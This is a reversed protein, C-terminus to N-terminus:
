ELRAEVTGPGAVVAPYRNKGAVSEVVIAEGRRGDSLATVRESITLSGSRVLAMVPAGQRVEVPPLFDGRAVPQNPMLPRIAQLGAVESPDFASAGGLTRLEMVNVVLDDAQVTEGVQLQRRLTVVPAFVRVHVVATTTLLTRGEADKCALRINAHGPLQGSEISLMDMRAVHPTLISAVSRVQVQVRMEEPENGGHIHRRMADAVLGVARLHEMDLHSGPVPASPTGVGSVPETTTQVTQLTGAAAHRSDTTSPSSAEPPRRIVTVSPNGLFRVPDSFGLERIRSRIRERDIVVSEGPRPAPGVFLRPMHAAAPHDKTDHRVMGLDGLRVYAGDVDVEAHLTITIGAQVARASPVLLAVLLLVRVVRVAMGRLSLAGRRSVACTWTQTGPRRTTPTMTPATM